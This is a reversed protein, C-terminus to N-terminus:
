DKLFSIADRKESKHIDLKESIRLLFNNFTNSVTTEDKITGVNVLSSPVQDIAHM